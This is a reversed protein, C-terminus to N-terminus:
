FGPANQPVQFIFFPGTAERGGHHDGVGKCHLSATTKGVRLLERSETPACIKAFCLVRTGEAWGGKSTKGTQLTSDSHTLTGGDRGKWGQSGKRFGASGKWRLTQCVNETLPWIALIKPKSARRGRM